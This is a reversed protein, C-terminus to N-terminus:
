QRLDHLRVALKRPVEVVRSSAWLVGVFLLYQVAGFVSRWYGTEAWSVLYLWMWFTSVFMFASYGCMRLSKVLASVVGIIGLSIFLWGIQTVTMVELHAHISPDFKAYSAPFPSMLISLGSMFFILSLLLLITARISM